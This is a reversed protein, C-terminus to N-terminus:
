LIWQDSLPFLDLGDDYRGIKELRQIIDAVTPGSFNTNVYKTIKTDILSLDYSRVVVFHRGLMVDTPGLYDEIWRPTVVEFRFTANGINAVDDGVFDVTVFYDVHFCELDAPPGLSDLPCVLGTVVAKV